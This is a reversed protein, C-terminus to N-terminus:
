FGIADGNGNELADMVVNEPTYDTRDDEPYSYNGLDSLLKYAEEEDKDIYDYQIDWFKDIEEDTVDMLGAM